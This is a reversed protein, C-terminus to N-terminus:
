SDLFLPSIDLFLIREDRYHLLKPVQINRWRNCCQEVQLIYCLQQVWIGSQLRLTPTRRQRNLVNCTEYIMLIVLSKLDSLSQIVESLCGGGAGGKGIQDEPALSGTDM